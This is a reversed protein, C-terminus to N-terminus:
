IQTAGGLSGPSSAPNEAKPSTVADNANNAIVEGALGKGGTVVDLVRTAATRKEHEDVHSYHHTM